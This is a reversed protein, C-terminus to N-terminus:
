NIGLLRNAALSVDGRSEVLAQSAQEQTFGMGQLMGISETSPVSAEGEQAGTTTNTNTSHSEQLSMLIARNLAAEEEARQTLMELRMTDRMSDRVIDPPPLRHVRTPSPDATLQMTRLADSAANIEDANGRRLIQRLRTATFLTQAHTPRAVEEQEESGSNSYSGSDAGDNGQAGEGETDDEDSSVLFDPDVSLERNINLPSNRVQRVAIPSTSPTTANITRRRARNDNSNGRNRRRSSTGNLTQRRVSENLARARASHAGSGFELNSASATANDTPLDGGFIARMRQQLLELRQQRNSLVELMEVSQAGGANGVASVEQSSALDLEFLLAAVDLEVTEESDSRLRPRRETQATLEQQRRVQRSRHYGYDATRPRQPQARASPTHMGAGAVRKARRRTAAFTVIVTEIEIRKSSAARTALAIQDRGARLRRRAVVDSLTEVNGELDAQLLDFIRHHDENVARGFRGRSRNASPRMSTYDHDDENEFEFYAYPYSWQLINRCKLLEDFGDTLFRLCEESEEWVDSEGAVNTGADVGASTAPASTTGSGSGVSTSSALVQQAVLPNMQFFDEEDSQSKVGSEGPGQAPLAESALSPQAASKVNHSAMPNPSVEGQLWHLKGEASAVLGGRIRLLTAQYMRGEMGVSERHAQYRTFHHIFRAMKQNRWRLRLTEAHANGKEESWIDGDGEGEGGV